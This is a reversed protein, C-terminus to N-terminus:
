LRMERGYGRPTHLCPPGELYRMGIDRGAVRIETYSVTRADERHMCTSFPGRGPRHSRHLRRLWEPTGTGKLGLALRFARGRTRQAGPEDWGSSVWHHTRWGHERVELTRLDWRWELVRSEHPFV